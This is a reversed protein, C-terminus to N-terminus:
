RAQIVQVTVQAAVEPHLRVTAPYEGITKIAGVLIKKKDVSGLDAAAIADAIDAPKVGGFLRGEKGAKVAVKVKTSELKAKLAQAEEVTALERAARAARLQEVQKAGNATFIVAVGKPLLYNRAYGAKVEIVDGAEGLGAVEQTLILKSM